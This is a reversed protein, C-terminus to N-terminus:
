FRNDFYMQIYNAYCLNRCNHSLMAYMSIIITDSFFFYMGYAQVTMAPLENDDIVIKIFYDGSAHVVYDAKFGVGPIIEYFVDDM